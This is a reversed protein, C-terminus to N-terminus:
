KPCDLGNSLFSWESRNIAIVIGSSSFHLWREGYNWSTEPPNAGRPAGLLNKVEARTMGCRIYKEVNGNYAQVKEQVAAARSELSLLEATQRELTEVQARKLDLERAVEQNQKEMEKTARALLGTKWKTLDNMGIRLLRFVTITGDANPEEYTMQTEITLGSLDTIQAYNSMERKGHEYAQQRGTERTKANTAVGVSYLNNGEVYSSQETWFPRKNASAALIENPILGGFMVSVFLVVAVIAARGPKRHSAFM